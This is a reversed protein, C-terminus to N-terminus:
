GNGFYQRANFESLIQQLKKADNQNAVIDRRSSAENGKLKETRPWPAPRIAPQAPGLLSIASDTRLRTLDGFRTCLHLKQRPHGRQVNHRRAPEISPVGSHRTRGCIISRPRFERNKAATCPSFRIIALKKCVYLEQM